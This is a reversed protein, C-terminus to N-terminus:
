QVQAVGMNGDGIRVFLAKIRADNSAREIAGLADALTLGGPILLHALGTDAPKDPLADSLDLTLVTGSEIRAVHPPAWFWLAIGACFLLFFFVGIIAFFGVILRRM